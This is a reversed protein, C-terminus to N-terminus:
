EAALRTAGTETADFRQKLAAQEKLAVALHRQKVHGYGRITEPINALGVALAHNEPTLKGAVEDMLRLYDGILRRETRREATYGFIDFPTGRLAKLRALVAFLKLVWPGFTTKVPEGRANRRGLIPPALHFELRGSTEFEAELQKRFSPATYLRAVEYEDKYAMLKFLCRAVAEALGSAGPARAEEAVRIREVAARYRAAYAANQYDTLFAVRRSVLSDLDRAPEAAAQPRAKAVIAEVARPDHAALRGWRFAALNMPV